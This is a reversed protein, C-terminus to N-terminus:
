GPEGSAIIAQIQDLAAILTRFEAASSFAGSLGDARAQARMAAVAAAIRDREAAAILPAAAELLETIPTIKFCYSQHQGEPGPDCVCPLAAYAAEAAEPPVTM